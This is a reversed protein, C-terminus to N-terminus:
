ARQALFEARGRVVQAAQGEYDPCNQHRDGEVPQKDARHLQEVRAIEKAPLRWLTDAPGSEPDSQKQHSSNHSRDNHASNFKACVFCPYLAPM